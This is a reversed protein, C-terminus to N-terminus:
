VRKVMILSLYTLAILGYKSIRLFACSVSDDVVIKGSRKASHPNSLTSQGFHPFVPYIRRCVSPSNNELSHEQMAFRREMRLSVRLM